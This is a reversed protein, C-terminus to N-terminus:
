NSLYSINKQFQVGTIIKLAGNLEVFPVLTLVATPRGAKSNNKITFTPSTPPKILFQQLFDKLAKPAPATQYDMLTLNWNSSISSRKFEELFLFKNESVFSNKLVPYEYETSVTKMIGVEDEWELGIELAQQGFTFASFLCLFFPNLWQLLKRLRQQKMM